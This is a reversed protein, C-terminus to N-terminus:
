AAEEEKRKKFFAVAAATRQKPYKPAKVGRHAALAEEYDRIRNKMEKESYNSFGSIKRFQHVFSVDPREDDKWVTTKAGAKEWAECFKHTGLRPKKAM